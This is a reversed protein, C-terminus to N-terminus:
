RMQLCKGRWEIITEANKISGTRKTPGEDLNPYFPVLTGFGREVQDCSWWFIAKTITESVETINLRLGDTIPLHDSPTKRPIRVRPPQDRSFGYDKTKDPLWTWYVYNWRHSCHFHDRIELEVDEERMTGFPPWRYPPITSHDAEQYEACCDHRLRWVHARSAKDRDLPPMDMFSQPSGSWAAADTNPRVDPYDRAQTLVPIISKIISHRGGLAVGLWLPAANTFSLVKVLLELDNDEIIPELIAAIPGLWAGAFNCPVDPDWFVSWLCSGLIWPSLSLTMYWELYGFDPPPGDDDLSATPNILRPRPLDITAPRIVNRSAHLPLCLAASLSATCQTGLDYAQCFRALYRAAQTSTPPTQTVDIRGLIRLRCEHSEIEWPLIQDGTIAWSDTTLSWWWALEQPSAYDLNVSIATSSNPPHRSVQYQICLKQREALSANLVYAWGLVLLAIGNNCTGDWEVFCQSSSIRYISRHRKRLYFHQPKERKEKL